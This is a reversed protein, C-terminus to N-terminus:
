LNWSGPLARAFALRIRAGLHMRNPKSIEVVEACAVWEAAEGPRKLALECDRREAPNWVTGTPPHGPASQSTRISVVYGLVHSGDAYEIRAANLPHSRVVGHDGLAPASERLHVRGDPYVQEVIPRPWQAAAIRYLPVSLMLAAFVLLTLSVLASSVFEGLSPPTKM